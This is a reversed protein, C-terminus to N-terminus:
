DKLAGAQRLMLMDIGWIEQEWSAIKGEGKYDMFLCPITVNVGNWKRWKGTSTKERCDFIGTGQLTDLTSIFTNFDTENPFLLGRVKLTRKYTRVSFGYHGDSPYDMFTAGADKVDVKCDKIQVQMQNGGAYDLYFWGKTLAM